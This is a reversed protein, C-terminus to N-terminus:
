LSQAAQVPPPIEGADNEGGALGGADTGLQAQRQRAPRQGALQHAHSIRLQQGPTRALQPKLHGDQRVRRTPSRVAGAREHHLMVRQSRRGQGSLKIRAVGGM